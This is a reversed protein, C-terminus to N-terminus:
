VKVVYAQVCDITNGFVGAYDSTGTVWAYYGTTNLVSVRYKVEYGPAGELKMQIGDITAGQYGACGYKWDSLDYSDVWDLWSGGRVHVRYKVTGSSSKIAFGQVRTNNVGAYDETNVVEPLWRGNYVCYTVKPMGSKPGGNTYVVNGNMDFVSFGKICASKANALSAYAGLQSKADKWTKRVRYVGPLSKSSSSSSSSSSRKGNLIAQVDARFQTMSLGHKGWWNDPDVHQSGMGQNGAEHHSLINSVKLNFKNCLYVCLEVAKNYVKKCYDEDYLGDECMEFQIFPPNYNYSGKWGSGVGWCCINWPLVQYTKVNNNKDLGIAAHVCVDQGSENWSNNYPNNGIVGDDPQVYRRLNPNNCGTSHVIIGAPTMKQYSKYCDSKTALITGDVASM